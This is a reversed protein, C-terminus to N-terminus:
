WPKERGTYDLFRGNDAHKLGEIVKILGRISEEPTLPANSGGMDTQVWGPHLVVCTFGKSGLEDALTKNFM